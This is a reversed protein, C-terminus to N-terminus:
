TPYELSARVAAVGGQVSPTGRHRHDNDDPQQRSGAGRRRRIAGAGRTATADRDGDGDGTPTAYVRPCKGTTGLPETESEVARARCATRSAATSCSPSGPTVAVTNTASPPAHDPAAPVASPTCGTLTRESNLIALMVFVTMAASIMRSDSCPLSRRLSGTEACRGGLKWKSVLPAVM